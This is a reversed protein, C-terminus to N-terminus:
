GRIRGLLTVFPNLVGCATVSRDAVVVADVVDAIGAIVVEVPAAAVVEEQDPVRGPSVRRGRELPCSAVVREDAAGSVLEDDAIVVREGACERAATVVVEATSGAVVSEEPVV